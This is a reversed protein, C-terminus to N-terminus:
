IWVREKEVRMWRRVSHSVRARVCRVRLLRRYTHINMNINRTNININANM